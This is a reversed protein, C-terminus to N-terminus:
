AGVARCISTIDSNHQTLVIGKFPNEDTTNQRCFVERLNEQNIQGKLPKPYNSTNAVTVLLMREGEGSYLGPFVLYYHHTQAHPSGHWCGKRRNAETQDGNSM